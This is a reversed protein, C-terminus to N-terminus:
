AITAVCPLFINQTLAVCHQLWKMDNTTQHKHERGPGILSEMVHVLHTHQRCVFVVFWMVVNSLRAEKTGHSKHTIFAERANKKKEKKRKKKTMSDGFYTNSMTRPARMKGSIDDISMARLWRSADLWFAPNCFKASNSSPSARLANLNFTVFLAPSSIPFSSKFTLSTLTFFRRSSGVAPPQHTRSRAM